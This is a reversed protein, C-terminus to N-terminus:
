SHQFKAEDRFAPLVSATTMVCFPHGAPDLMVRLGVDDPDHHEALSAGLVQLWDLTADLDDVALELHIQAVDSPWTPRRYNPLAQFSLLLGRARVSGEVVEGGLAAAYFKRLREQSEADACDITLALFRVLSKAPSPPSPM